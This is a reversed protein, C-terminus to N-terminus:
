RKRGPAADSEFFLAASARAAGMEEVLRGLDRALQRRQLGPLKAIAGVLRAQAPEPAKRLLALGRASLALEARRGDAASRRRLVLGRRQLRAVVVSVSSQDTLTRQALLAISPAPGEALRQLVFLQASSLGTQQTAERGSLRLARVIRRLSDLVARVDGPADARAAKGAGATPASAHSGM